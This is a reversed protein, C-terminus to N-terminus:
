EFGKIKKLAKELADAETKGAGTLNKCFSFNESNLCISFDYTIIDVGASKLTRQISKGYSFHIKKLSNDSELSIGHKKLFNQTAKCVGDHYPCILFFSDENKTAVGSQNKKKQYGYTLRIGQNLGAKKLLGEPLDLLCLLSLTNGKKSFKNLEFHVVGDQQTQRNMLIKSGQLIKIPLGNLPGLDDFVNVDFSFSSESYQISNSDIKVRVFNLKSILQEELEHLQHNLKISSKLPKLKSLVDLMENYMFVKPIATMLEDSSKKYNRNKLAATGKSEHISIEEQLERMRLRMASEVEDINLIARAKFESGSKPLVELKIWKLSLESQINQIASYKEQSESRNGRTIDEVIMQESTSVNAVIQKAIGSFATNNAEEQSITSSGVYKVINSAFALNIFSFFAFIFVLIFKM